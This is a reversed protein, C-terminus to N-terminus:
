AIASFKERLGIREMRPLVEQIFYPLEQLYNLFVLTSGSVGLAAIKQLTEVVDDPTGIVPYMGAFMGPFRRPKEGSLTSALERDLVTDGAKTSASM